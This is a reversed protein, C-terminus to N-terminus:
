NDEGIISSVRKKGDDNLALFLEAIYTKYEISINVAKVDNTSDVILKETFSAVASKVCEDGTEEDLSYGIAIFDADMRSLQRIEEKALPM